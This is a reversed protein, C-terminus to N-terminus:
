RWNQTNLVFYKLKIEASFKAIYTIIWIELINEIELKLHFLCSVNGM